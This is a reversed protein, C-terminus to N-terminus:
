IISSFCFGQFSNGGCFWWRGEWVSLPNRARSMWIGALSTYKQVSLTQMDCRILLNNPHRAYTNAEFIKYKWGSEKPLHFWWQWTPKNTHRWNLQTEDFTEWILLGNEPTQSNGQRSKGSIIMNKCGNKFWPTLSTVDEARNIEFPRNLHLTTRLKTCTIDLPLLWLPLRPFFQLLWPPSGKVAAPLWELYDTRTPSIGGFHGFCKPKPAKLLKGLHIHSLIFNFTTINM